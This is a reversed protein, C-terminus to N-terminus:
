GLLSYRGEAPDRQLRGQNRLGELALVIERGDDSGIAAMLHEFYKPGDRL